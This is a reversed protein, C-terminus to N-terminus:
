FFWHRHRVASQLYCLFSDILIYDFWYFNELRFFVFLFCLWSFYVSEQLDILCYWINRSDYFSFLTLNPCFLQKSFYHCSIDSIKLFFKSKYIWSTWHVEHLVFISFVVILCIITMSSFVLPLSFIQFCGYFFSLNYVPSRPYSFQQNRM